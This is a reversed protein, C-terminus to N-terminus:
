YNSPFFWFDNHITKDFLSLCLDLFWEVGLWFLFIGGELQQGLRLLSLAILVVGARRQRRRGDRSFGKIFGEFIKLTSIGRM